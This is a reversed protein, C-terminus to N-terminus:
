ADRYAYHMRVIADDDRPNIDAHETEGTIKQCLAILRQWFTKSRKRRVELRIQRYVGAGHEQQMENFLEHARVPDRALGAMMIIRAEKTIDRRDYKASVHKVPRHLKRKPFFYQIVNSM